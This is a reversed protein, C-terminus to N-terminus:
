QKEQVHGVEMEINSRLVLEGSRYLNWVAAIMLAEHRAGLIEDTIAYNNVSLVIDSQESEDYGFFAVPVEFDKGVLLEHMDAPDPLYSLREAFQNARDRARKGSGYFGTNAVEHLDDM